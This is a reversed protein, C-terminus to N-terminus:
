SPNIAGGDDDEGAPPKGAVKETIRQYADDCVAGSKGASYGAAHIELDQIRQFLQHTRERLEALSSEFAEARGDVKEVRHELDYFRQRLARVVQTPALEATPQSRVSRRRQGTGFGLLWGGVLAVIASLPVAIMWTEM